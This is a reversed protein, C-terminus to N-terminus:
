PLSAVVRRRWIGLTAPADPEPDVARVVHTAVCEFALDLGHIRATRHGDDGIRAVTNGTYHSLCDGLSSFLPPWCVFLARNSHAALVTQDGALVATWTPSPAHYRNPADGDPPAQDFAIVDVGAARLKSAWYGTGAGIEVLPGLFERAAHAVGCRSLRVLVAPCDWSM